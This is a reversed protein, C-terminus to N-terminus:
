DETHLAFENSDAGCNPCGHPIGGNRTVLEGCNLCRWILHMNSTRVELPNRPHGSQVKAEDVAWHVHPIVGHFQGANDVVMITRHPTSSEADHEFHEVAFEPSCLLTDACCLDVVSKQGTSANDMLVAKSVSGHYHGRGDVIPLIDLGSQSAGSMADAISMDPRLMVPTEMMVERAIM